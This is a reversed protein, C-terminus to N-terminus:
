RSTEADRLSRNDSVYFIHVSDGDTYSYCIATGTAPNVDRWIVEIKPRHQLTKQSTFEPLVKRLFDVFRHILEAERIDAERMKTRLAVWKHSHQKSNKEAIRKTRSPRTKKPLPLPQTPPLNQQFHDSPVLYM